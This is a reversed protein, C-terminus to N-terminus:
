APLDTVEARPALGGLDAHRRHEAGARYGSRYGGAEGVAAAGLGRWPLGGRPRRGRGGSTAALARSLHSKDRRNGAVLRSPALRALPPWGSGAVPRVPTLWASRAGGRDRQSPIPAASTQVAASTLRHLRQPTPQAPP